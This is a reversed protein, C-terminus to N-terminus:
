CSLECAGRLISAVYYPHGSILLAPASRANRGQWNSAPRRAQQHSLATNPQQQQNVDPNKENLEPLFGSTQRLLWALLDANGLWNGLAAGAVWGNAGYWRVGVVRSTAGTALESECSSGKSAGNPKQQTLHRGYGRANPKQQTLHRGDM